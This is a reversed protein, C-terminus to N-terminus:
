LIRSTFKIEQNKLEIILKAFTRPSNSVFNLLGPAAILIIIMSLKQVVFDNFFCKNRAAAKTSCFHAQAM